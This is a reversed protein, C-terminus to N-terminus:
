VLRHPPNPSVPGAPIARASALNSQLESLQSAAAAMTPHIPGLTKQLESVRASQAAVQEQLNQVILSGEIDSVSGAGAKSRAAAAEAQAQTLQYSLNKLKEAELDM